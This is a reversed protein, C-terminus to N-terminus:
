SQWVDVKVDSIFITIHLSNEEVLNVFYLYKTIPLARRVQVIALTAGVASGARWVGACGRSLLGKVADGIGGMSDAGLASSGSVARSAAKQLFPYRM